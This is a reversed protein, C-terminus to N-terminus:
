LAVHRRRNGGAVCRVARMVHEMDTGVNIYFAYEYLDPSCEEVPVDNDHSLSPLEMIGQFQLKTHRVRMWTKLKNNKSEIDNSHFGNESNRWGLTHNVPPAHRYGLQVVAAKSSEWGDLVLSSKNKIHKRLVRKMSVLGRPKRNPADEPRPLFAFTIRKKNSSHTYRERGKGVSVAMWLWHANRRKDADTGAKM